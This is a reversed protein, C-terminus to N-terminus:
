VMVSFRQATRRELMAHETERTAREGKNSLQTFFTADKFEAPVMTRTDKLLPALDITSAFNENTLSYYGLTSGSWPSGADVMDIAANRYAVATAKLEVSQNLLVTLRETAERSLQGATDLVKLRGDAEVTFGYGTSALDPATAALNAEFTQFSAKLASQAGNFLDVFRPFHPSESRGVWTDVAEPAQATTTAAESPHYIAAPGANALAQKAPDTSAQPVLKQESPTLNLNAPPIYAPSVSLAM